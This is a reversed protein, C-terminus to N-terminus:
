WILHRGNPMAKVASVPGSSAPFKFIRSAEGGKFGKHLSFEEVTNNRRGAYIFNGDPSWCADMCWPGGTRSPIRAIPDPVRRDWIQITGDFSAALFTTDSNATPDQTSPASPTPPKEPLSLDPPDSPQAAENEAAEIPQVTDQAADQDGGTVPETHAEEAAQSADAPVPPADLMSSDQLDGLHNSEDMANPFGDDDDAGFAGGGGGDNDGFLSDADGGGGFLSDGDDADAPADEAAEHAVGNSLSGNAPKEGNNSALTGNTIVIEGSDEPM